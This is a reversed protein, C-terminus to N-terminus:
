ARVLLEGERDIISEVIQLDEPTDISWHTRGRYDVEVIKIPYGNELLRLQELGEAEEFPTPGMAAYDRLLSYRFGYIGVHRYVPPSATKTRLFPIMNKSFYLAHHSKDFTVLTGSTNGSAKQKALEEYQQLSLRAAPTAAIIEPDNQLANVLAEIVWPPTLVADGQLNVVLEPKPEVDILAQFTRETGNCCNISTMRVEAGFGNAHQEIRKDETTIYVADVGSVSRAIDWTRRLLTIGHITALPKGPFRTSDYRAPIVIVAPM